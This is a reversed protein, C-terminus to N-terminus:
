MYGKSTMKDYLTAWDYKVKKLKVILSGLPRQLFQNLDEDTSDRFKKEAAEASDAEVLYVNEFTLHEVIKFKSM